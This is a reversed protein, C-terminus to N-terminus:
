TLSMGLMVNIIELLYKAGKVLKFGNTSIQVGYNLEGVSKVDATLKGDEASLDMDGGATTYSGWNELGNSFDGNKILNQQESTSVEEVAAVAKVNTAALNVLSSSALTVAALMTILIRKM